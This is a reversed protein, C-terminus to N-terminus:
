FGLWGVPWACGFAAGCGLGAASPLTAACLPAGFGFLFL